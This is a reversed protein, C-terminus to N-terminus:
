QSLLLPAAKSPTASVPPLYHSLEASLEKLGRILEYHFDHNAATVLRSHLTIGADCAALFNRLADRLKTTKEESYETELEPALFTQCIPVVGSNVQTRVSGQLVRQLSVLSKQPRKIELWIAQAQTNVIDTANEIPSFEKEQREKVLLRSKLTPFTGDTTLVTRRKWQDQLGGHVNGSPTFPTDYTFRSLGTNQDVILDTVNMDQPLPDVFTVQIYGVGPLLETTSVTHSDTIIKLFGQGLKVGYLKKLREVFEGLLVTRAERYVFQKLHLSPGFVEGYFAVRYFNAAPHFTALETQQQLSEYVKKLGDYCEILHQFSRRKKYVPILMEYLEICTAQLEAKLLLTIASHLSDLGAELTALSAGYGVCEPPLTRLGPSLPPCIKKVAELTDVPWAVESDGQEMWMQTAVFIAVACMAAEAWRQQDQQLKCLKQLWLIHLDPVQVYADALSCYHDVIAHKDIPTRTSTATPLSLADRDHELTRAQITCLSGVMAEVEEWRRNIDDITSYGRGPVLDLSDRVHGQKLDELSARLQKACDAEQPFGNVAEVLRVDSLVKFFAMTLLMRLRLVNGFVAFSHKLLQQVGAIGARRLPETSCTCMRLLSVCAEYIFTQDRPRAYVYRRHTCMFIDLVRLFEAWAAASQRKNMFNLLLSCMCDLRNDKPDLDEPEQDIRDPGDLYAIFADLVTLSVLTSLNAEWTKLKHRFAPDNKLPMAAASPKRSGNARLAIFQERLPQNSRSSLSGKGPSYMRELTAKTDKSDSALVTYLPPALNGGPVLSTRAELVASPSTASFYEFYKFCAELIAFFAARRGADKAYCEALTDSNTHRLVFLACILIERKEQPVLKEFVDLNDALMELVPFFMSALSAKDESWQYRADYECKTVTMALIRAAKTRISREPHGLAIFVETVLRNVLLNRRGEITVFTSFNEVDCIVRLFALKMDQLVPTCSGVLKAFYLETLRLCQEPQILALLDACFFALSLNLQKAFVLGTSSREVLDALLASFLGQLSGFVPASLLMLAARDEDRERRAQLELAISKAILELLAWGVVLSDEYEVSGKSRTKNQAIGCWIHCLAPYVPVTDWRDVSGYVYDIYQVLYRSREEGDVVSQQVRKFINIVARFATGLEFGPAQSLGGRIYDDYAQLFASVHEDMPNISSCLRMRMRFLLKRDDLYPVHAKVNDELYKYLLESMVPLSLDATSVREPPYLPVVAYGLPKQQAAQKSKSTPPEVNLFTFLLHHKRGLLPPVQMKFEDHFLSIKSRWSITTGASTQMQGQPEKPFFVPLGPASFNLDDDKLEVKIYVNRQKRTVFSQPYIYLLHFLRMHPENQSLLRFNIMYPVPLKTISTGAPDTHRSEVSLVAGSRSPVVPSAGVESSSITEGGAVSGADSDDDESNAHYGNSVFSSGTSQERQHGNIPTNLGTSPMSPVILKALTGAPFSASADVGDGPLRQVVVQFQARVHKHIKRKPDNILDQLSEESYCEKIRHLPEVDVTKEQGPKFNCSGDSDFMPILAWAFQEHVPMKQSWDQAIQQLRIREKENSKGQEKRPHTYTKGKVGGASGTATRELQLLFCIGPGTEVDAFSFVCRREQRGSTSAMWDQPTFQFHFDESVKSRKSTDWTAVSGHFPEIAGAEFDLKSITVAFRLGQPNVSSPPLAPIRNGAVTASESQWNYLPDYVQVLQPPTTIALKSTSASQHLLEDEGYPVGGHKSATLEDQDGEYVQPDLEPLPAPNFHGYKGNIVVWDSSCTQVLEKLHPAQQAAEHLLLSAQPNATSHGAGSFPSRAVTTLTGFYSQERSPPLGLGGGSAIGSM